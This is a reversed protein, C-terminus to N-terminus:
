VAPDLKRLIQEETDKRDGADVHVLLSRRGYYEILPASEKEYVDLRKAVTAENDDPRQYVEGGCRDCIGDVKPTMGRLNYVAGCQRCVRRSGIRAIILSRPVQLDFVHTIRGDIRRFLEDLLEAQRVTRPFGDFMYRAGSPGAQLREEVIRIIVDDPVLAGRDMYSKAELAVPTGAKVAARLMDGTSVHEYRTAVKLDDAATGKGSGPPGMLIIAQM